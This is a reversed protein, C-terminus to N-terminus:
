SRSRRGPRLALAVFLALLGAGLGSGPGAACGGARDAGPDLAPEDLEHPDLPECRGPEAVPEADDLTSPCPFDCEAVGPQELAAALTTLDAKSADPEGPAGCSM